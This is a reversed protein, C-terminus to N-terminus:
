FRHCTVPSHTNDHFRLVYQQVAISRVVLSSLSVIVDSANLFSFLNVSDFQTNTTAKAQSKICNEFSDATVRLAM